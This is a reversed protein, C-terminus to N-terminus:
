ELNGRSGVPGSGDVEAELRVFVYPNRSDNTRIKVM